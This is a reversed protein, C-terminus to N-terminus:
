FFLLKVTPQQIQLQITFFKISVLQLFQVPISILEFLKETSKEIPQKKQETCSNELLKTETATASEVHTLFM